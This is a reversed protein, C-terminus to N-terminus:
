GEKQRKLSKPPFLWRYAAEDPDIRALEELSVTKFTTNFFRPPDEKKRLNHIYAKISKPDLMLRDLPDDLYGMADLYDHLFGCLNTPAIGEVLGADHLFLDVGHIIANTEFRSPRGAKKDEKKWIMQADEDNAVDPLCNPFLYNELLAEFWGLTDHIMLSSKDGSVFEISKGAFHYEPDGVSHIEKRKQIFSYLQAIEERIQREEIQNIASDFMAEDYAAINGNYYLNAALWLFDPIQGNSDIPDFHKSLMANIDEYLVREYLQYEHEADPNPDMEAAAVSLELEAFPLGIYDQLLKIYPKLKLAEINRIFIPKEAM